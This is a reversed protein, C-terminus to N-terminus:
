NSDRTVEVAHSRVSKGAPDEQGKPQMFPSKLVSSFAVGMVRRIASLLGARSVLM